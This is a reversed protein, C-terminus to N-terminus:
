NKERTGQADQGSGDKLIKTTFVDVINEFKTRLCSCTRACKEREPGREGNRGGWESVSYFCNEERLIQGPDRCLGGPLDQQGQGHRGKKKEEEQLKGKPGSGKWMGVWQGVVWQSQICNLQTRPASLEIANLFLTIGRVGTTGTVRKITEAATM